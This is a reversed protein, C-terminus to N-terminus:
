REAMRRTRPLWVTAAAPAASAVSTSGLLSGLGRCWRPSHGRVQCRRGDEMRQATSEIPYHGDHPSGCGLCRCEGAYDSDNDPFRTPDFAHRSPDETM